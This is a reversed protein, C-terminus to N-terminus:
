KKAIVEGSTPDIIVANTDGDSNVICVYWYYNSFQNNIDVIVKVYVEGDLTNNKVYNQLDEKMEEVAIQLATYWTIEFAKTQSILTVEYIDSGVIVAVTINTDDSVIKQIDVLFTNEYNNFELAGSYELDDANIRYNASTPLDDNKFKVTLLGFDVTKECVGNVVYPNERKGSMFTLSVVDDEGSFVNYRVEAMNELVLDLTSTNCGTFIVCLACLLIGLLFKRM